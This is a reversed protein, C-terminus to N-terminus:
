VRQERVTDIDCEDVFSLFADSDLLHGWIPESPNGTWVTGREGMTEQFEICARRHGGSITQVDVEFSHTVEGTSVTFKGGTSDYSGLIYPEM